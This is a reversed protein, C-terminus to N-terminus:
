SGLYLIHNLFKPMLFIVRYRLVCKCLKPILIVRSFRRIRLTKSHYYVIFSLSEEEKYIIVKAKKKGALQAKANLVNFPLFTGKNSLLGFLEDFKPFSEKKNTDYSRVILTNLGFGKIKREVARETVLFGAQM